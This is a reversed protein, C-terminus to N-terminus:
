GTYLSLPRKKARRLDLRRHWAVGVLLVDFHRDKSIRGVCARLGGGCASLDAVSGVPFDAAVSDALWAREMGDLDKPDEDLAVEASYLHGRCPLLYLLSILVAGSRALTRAVRLAREGRRSRDFVVLVSTAAV